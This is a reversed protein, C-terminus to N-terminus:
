KEGFIVEDIKRMEFINNYSARGIMGGFIMKENM